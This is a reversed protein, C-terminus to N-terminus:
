SQNEWKTKDLECVLFIINTVRLRQFTSPRKTRLVSIHEDVCHTSLRYKEFMSPYYKGKKNLRDTCRLFELFLHKVRAM